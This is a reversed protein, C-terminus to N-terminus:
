KLYRAFLWNGDTLPKERDAEASQSEVEEIPAGTTARLM